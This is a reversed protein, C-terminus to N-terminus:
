VRGIAMKQIVRAILQHRGMGAGPWRGGAAMTRHALALTARHQISMEFGRTQPGPHLRQQLRRCTPQHHIGAPPYHTGLEAAQGLAAAFRAQMCAQRCPGLAQLVEGGTVAVAQAEFNALQLTVMALRQQDPGPARNDEAGPAKDEIAPQNAIMRGVEPAIELHASGTAIAATQQQPLRHPGSALPQAPHRGPAKDVRRVAPGLANHDVAIALTKAVFLDVAGGKALRQAILLAPLRPQHQIRAQAFLCDTLRQETAIPPELAQRCQGQHQELHALTVVRVPQGANAAHLRPLQTTGQASVVGTGPAIPRISEALRFAAALHQILPRKVSAIDADTVRDKRQAGQGQAPKFNIFAVASYEIYVALRNGAQEAGPAGGDTHRRM